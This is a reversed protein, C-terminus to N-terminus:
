LMPSSGTPIFLDFSRVAQSSGPPRTTLSEANDGSHSPKPEIGPGPVEVHFLHLFYIFLHIFLFLYIFSYIFIFLDIFIFLYIFLYIFHWVVM